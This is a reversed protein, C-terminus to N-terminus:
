YNFSKKDKLISEYKKLQCIFGFNPAAKKYKVKIYNLAEIYSWDKEKM